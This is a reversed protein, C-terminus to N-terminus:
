GVSVLSIISVGAKICWQFFGPLTFAKKICVGTLICSKTIFVGSFLVLRRLASIKGVAFCRLVSMQRVVLILISM